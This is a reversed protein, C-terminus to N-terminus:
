DDCSTCGDCGGSAFALERGLELQKYASCLAKKYASYSPTGDHRDLIQQFLRLLPIHKRTVLEADFEVDFFHLFDEASELEEIDDEFTATAIDNM